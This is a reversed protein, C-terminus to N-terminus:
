GLLSKGKQLFQFVATVVEKKNDPHKDPHWERLLSRFEKMRAERPEVEKMKVLKDLVLKKAAAVDPTEVNAAAASAGNPAPRTGSRSRSRSSSSSSNKKRKEKKKRSKEKRRRAWSSTSSSSSSSSSRPRVAPRYARSDFDLRTFRELVERGANVCPMCRPAEPTKLQSLSFADAEKWNGCAACQKKQDGLRQETGYGGAGVWLGAETCEYCTGLGQMAKKKQNMSFASNPKMRKCFYCQKSGGTDEEKVWLEARPHDKWSEDVCPTCTSSGVPRKLQSSSYASNPQWRKCNKCERGACSKAMAAAAAATPNGGAMAAAAAAAIAAGSFAMSPAPMIGVGATVPNAFFSPREARAPLGFGMMGAATQGHAPTNVGLFTGDGGWSNNV